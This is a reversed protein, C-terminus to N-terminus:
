LLEEALLRWYFINEGDCFRVLLGYKWLELNLMCAALFTTFAEDLEMIEVFTYLRSRELEFLARLGGMGVFAVPPM